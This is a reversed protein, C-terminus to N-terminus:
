EGKHWDFLITGCLPCMGKEGKVEILGITQKCNFCVITKLRTIQFLCTALTERGEKVKKPTWSRDFAERVTITEKTM